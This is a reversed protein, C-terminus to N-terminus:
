GHTLPVPTSGDVVSTSSDDPVVKRAHYKSLVGERLQRVPARDPTYVLDATSLPRDDSCLASGLKAGQASLVGTNLSTTLM